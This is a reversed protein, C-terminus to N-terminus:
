SQNRKKRLYPPIDLDEGEFLSPSTDKFKGRAGGELDLEAQPKVATESRKVATTAAPVDAVEKMSITAEPGEPDNEIAEDEEGGDEEDALEFPSKEVEEDDSIEKQEESQPVMTFICTAVDSGDGSGSEEVEEAVDEEDAAAGVEAM